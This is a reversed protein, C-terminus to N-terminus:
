VKGTHDAIAGVIQPWAEKPLSHGMKDIILLRAGPIAEATDKGGEVPVLPDEAGHIVLTPATVSALRPKRNGNAMIAMLQRAIGQPYFSRDYSAAMRKRTDAEDFPFSANLVKWMKIGHEIFAEREVPAPTMLFQMAEPKALPLKPNGTSGMITILSLVRSPHSYGIVQTIAAGMSAGCIHAKKIGLTDLLGIADNAMDDLSYFSQVKKGQMSATLAEMIDPVGAEEIKTSLGIDRNDFRTVYFGKNVLQKCFDEEWAIMQGGLGMILLIPPSTRDGFTDYEIEIGNTKAKAM